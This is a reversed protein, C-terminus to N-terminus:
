VGVTVSTAKSISDINSLVGICGYIDITEHLAKTWYWIDLDDCGGYGIIVRFCPVGVDQEIVMGQVDRSHVPM